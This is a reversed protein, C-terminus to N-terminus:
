VQDWEDEYHKMTEPPVPPIDMTGSLKHKTGDGHYLIRGQIVNYHCTTSNGPGLHRVSPTLTKTAGDWSWNPGASKGHIPIAIHLENCGQCWVGWYKGDKRVLIGSM